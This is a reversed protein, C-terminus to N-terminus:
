KEPPYIEDARRAIHLVSSRVTKYSGTEWDGPIGGCLGIVGRVADPCTAAFRYNLSVPQSFGVLIRREPPIGYERGAECLVHNVQDHHLRIGRPSHRSTVWCSGVDLRAGPQAPLFFGHPGELAVIVPQRGVLDATLPLLMEPTQGFGHLTVVLLTRADLVDPALAQYHCDLRASFSCHRVADTM